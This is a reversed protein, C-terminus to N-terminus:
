FEEYYHHLKTDITNGEIGKIERKKNAKELKEQELKKKKM